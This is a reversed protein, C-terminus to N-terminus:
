ARVHEGSRPKEFVEGRRWPAASHLGQWFGCIVAERSHLLVNALQPAHNFLEHRGLSLGRGRLCCAGVEGGVIYAQMARGPEEGRGEGM